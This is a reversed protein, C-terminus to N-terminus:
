FVNKIKEFLTRQENKSLGFVCTCLAYILVIVGGKACFTSWGSDPLVYNTPVDGESINCAIDVM